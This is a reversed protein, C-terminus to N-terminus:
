GQAKLEDLYRTLADKWEPLRAFGNEDLKKKSLRSNKPRPAKAGYEETTVHKVKTDYGAQRFIEETFEAWSCIGENTGHYIGYKDTVIMDCILRALDVTYTPSGIQDAVVRVEDHERGVRLM